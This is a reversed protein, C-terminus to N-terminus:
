DQIAFYVQGKGDAQAGALLGCMSADAVRAQKGTDIISVVSEYPRASPSRGHCPGGQQHDPQPVSRPQPAVPVTGLVVLTGTAPELVLARPSAPLNVFGTVEFTGRDFIFVRNSRGDSVYGTRGNPDLAVAHAEGLGTVEGAVAGSGIDIVQVKSQHTVFLQGAAPDLTLYDWSGAGGIVWTKRIAFPSGPLEDARPIPARQAALSASGVLSLVWWGFLARMRM